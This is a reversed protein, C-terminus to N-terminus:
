GDVNESPLPGLAPDRRMSVHLCLCLLSCLPPSFPTPSIGIFQLAIWAPNCLGCRYQSYGEPSRPALMPADALSLSHHDEQLQRQMQKLTGRMALQSTSGPSTPIHFLKINPSHGMRAPHQMWWPPMPSRLPNMHSADGAVVCGVEPHAAQSVDLQRSM